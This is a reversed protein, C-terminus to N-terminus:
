YQFHNIQNDFNLTNLPRYQYLYLICGRLCMSQQLPINSDYKEQSFTESM